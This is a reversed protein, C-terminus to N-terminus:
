LTYGLGIFFGNAKLVYNSSKDLDLLGFRYGGFLNFQKYKFDAGLVAYINFRNRSSNDGYWNYTTTSSGISTKTNGALALTFMPGVFPAITFDRNIAFGYNFLVPVDILFQNEKTTTTVLLTASESRMNMRFQGGVAVGLGKYLGINQSFGIAFGQYNTSTNGAVFTEPAYAAYITSQAQVNGAVFMAAVLAVIALAKRMVILNQNTQQQNNKIWNEPQM